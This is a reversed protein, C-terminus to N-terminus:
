SRPLSLDLLVRHPARDAICEQLIAKHEIDIALQSKRFVEQARIFDEVAIAYVVIPPDTQELVVVLEHRTSEARFTELVEESRRQLEEMWSHFVTVKDPILAFFGVKLM